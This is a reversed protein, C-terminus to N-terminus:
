VRACKWFFLFPSRHVGYATPADAVSFGIAKLWRISADNHSAVFNCLVPFYRTWEDTIRRGEVVMQRPISSLADTGLLWATAGLGEAVFGLIGEPKGNVIICAAFDSDRVSKTLAELPPMGCSERSELVDAVRM